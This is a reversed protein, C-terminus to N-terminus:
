ANDWRINETGMMIASPLPTVKPCLCSRRSRVAASMLAMNSSIGNRIEEINRGTGETPPNSNSESSNRPHNEVIDM